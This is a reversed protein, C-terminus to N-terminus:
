CNNVQDTQYQDGYHDIHSWIQTLSYALKGPTGNFTVRFWPPPADPQAPQPALALQSVPALIWQYQMRGQSPYFAWGPPIQKAPPLKIVPQHPHINPRPLGLLEGQIGPSSQGLLGQQPM